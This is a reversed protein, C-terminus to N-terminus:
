GRQGHAAPVQRKQYGPPENFYQSPQPYWRIREYAFSWDRDRGVLKLVVGTEVDVWEYWRETRGRRDTQVEYLQAAREVATADGILIRSHEGALAPQMPLVDDPDLPTVLLQKQQVLLYWVEALDLRVIEIGAYGYDTRLAYKYELRLRDVKAFVQAQYRKGNVQKTISGSFEHPPFTKTGASAPVMPTDTLAIVICALWLAQFKWSRCTWMLRRSNPLIGTPKGGAPFGAALGHVDTL